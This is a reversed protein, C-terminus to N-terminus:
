HQQKRKLENVELQVGEMMLLMGVKESISHVLSKLGM